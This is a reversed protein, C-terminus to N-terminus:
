EKGEKFASSVERAKGRALLLLILAGILLVGVVAATAGWPGLAPILAFLAGIVLAVLALHVFGLAFLGYLAASKGRDAAFAARSKQYALEAEAYTRTDNILAQIDESLSLDEPSVPDDGGRLAADFEGEHDQRDDPLGDDRM